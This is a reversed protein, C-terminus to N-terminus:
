FSIPYNLLRGLVHIIPRGRNYEQFHVQSLALLHHPVQLILECTSARLGVTTLDQKFFRRALVQLNGGM